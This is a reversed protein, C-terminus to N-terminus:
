AARGGEKNLTGKAVGIMTELLDLVAKKSEEFPQKAMAAASQSKAEKITVHAGRVLIQAYTDKRRYLKAVATADKVSDFDFELVDCWNVECLAWKRFHESDVFGGPPITKIDLRKAVAALHQGEPLSEFGDNLAAFYQSHSARSRPELPVLPYEEDAHYQRGALNSYRPLPVMAMRREAVGDDDVVEVQKWICVIPLIRM